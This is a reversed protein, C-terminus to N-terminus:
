GKLTLIISEKEKRIIQENLMRRIIWDLKQVPM